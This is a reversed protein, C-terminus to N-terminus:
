QLDSRTGATEAAPETITASAVCSATAGLDTKVEIKLSVKGPNAGATFTIPILHLTKAEQPVSFDFADSSCDVSTIRFPRTGRVVLKKNTVVEGPRVIGMFLSAPSVTLPSVVRGEVPLELSSNYSENTVITLQDHIYGVPADEKLRVTMTYAVRGFNAQRENLEVEFYPNASRVDVIDWSSRGTHSVQVQREALKGYEVDGFAVSGPTFMVDSRIYGRVSLQVEAYYPKDIIVTLTASGRGLYSKTNFVARVAGKEWTKLTNKTVQPVTCRCSSRVGAVHIDEEFINQFEFDYVAKSDRAVVGFDHSLQDSCKLFMKRAWQQADAAPAVLTAMVIALVLTRFV